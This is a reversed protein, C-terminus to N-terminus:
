KNLVEFVAEFLKTIAEKLMIVDQETLERSRTNKIKDTGYIRHRIGGKANVDSFDTLLAQMKIYKSIEKINDM